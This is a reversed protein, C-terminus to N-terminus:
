MGTAPLLPLTDNTHDSEDACDPPLDVKYFYFKQENELWGWPSQANRKFIDLVKEPSIENPLREPPSYIEDNQFDLSVKQPRKRKARVEKGLATVNIDKPPHLM